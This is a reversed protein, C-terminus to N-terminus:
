LGLRAFVAAASRRMGLRLKREVRKLFPGRDPPRFPEKLRRRLQMDEVVSELFYRKALRYGEAVRDQHVLTLSTPSAYFHSLFKPVHAVGGSRLAAEWIFLMDSGAGTDLAIMELRQWRPYSGRFSAWQRAILTCGPSLPMSDGQISECLYEEAPYFLRFPFHYHVADSLPGHVLTATFAVGAGPHAALAALAEALFTPEIWDDSWLIKIYDGTCHEMGAIWNKLPGVNTSNQFCRVRADALAFRQAVPWTEDTSCNDSIIVEINKHTQDLASQVARVLLQERNYTPILISVKPPEIAASARAVV